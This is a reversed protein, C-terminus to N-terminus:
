GVTVLVWRFSAGPPLSTAGEPLRPGAYQGVLAQSGPALAVNTRNATVERQLEAAMVAATDAHGVASTAGEALQRAEELTVTRISVNCVQPVMNLSFANCIVM